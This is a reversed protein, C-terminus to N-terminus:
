DPANGSQAQTQWDRLPTRGKGVVIDDDAGCGMCDGRMNHIHKEAAHVLMGCNKCEVRRQYAKARKAGRTVRAHPYDGCEDAIVELIAKLQESPRTSRLPGVLGIARAWIAFPGKHGHECDDAAHVLEHALVHLVVEPEDIGPSIFIENHGDDSQSSRWCQGGIKDENGRTGAPWGCAIRYKQPLPINNPVFLFDLIMTAAKHLYPERDTFTTTM